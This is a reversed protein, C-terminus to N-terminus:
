KVKIGGKIFEVKEEKLLRGLARKFASKSMNLEKRIEKPSSYDNLYLIGGKEMAKNLIIEADEEIEIYFKDRLSLDLKGDDKVNTVRVDVIDGIAYVGILEKKPILGEYKNDVAVFAGFKDNISYIVGKVWDNEKYPSDSSLFDRIKMTGCLRNSKDIYLGIPYKRGKELKTTQEKFPLFLDKELGWDLFAGISTIDVVELLGVEGLIVKPRRTTAIIREKFDRYIFVEIEDGVKTGEPVEKKPLLVDKDKKQSDKTNLFVGVSTINKVELTQMKGLEIM